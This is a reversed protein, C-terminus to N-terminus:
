RRRYEHTPAVRATAREGMRMRELVWRNAQVTISDDSAAQQASNMEKISPARQNKKSLSVDCLADTVSTEPVTRSVRGPAGNDSATTSVTPSTPSPASISLSAPECAATENKAGSWFVESPDM